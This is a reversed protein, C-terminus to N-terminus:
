HSKRQHHHHPNNSQTKTSHSITEWGNKGMIALWDAFYHRLEMLHDEPYPQHAALVVMGQPHVMVPVTRFGPMEIRLQPAACPLEVQMLLLQRQTAVHLTEALHLLATHHDEYSTSRMCTLLRRLLLAFAIDESTAGESQPPPAGHADESLRHISM